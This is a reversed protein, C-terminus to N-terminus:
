SVRINATGKIVLREAERLDQLQRRLQEDLSHDRVVGFTREQESRDVNRTEAKNM